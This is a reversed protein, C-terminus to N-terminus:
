YNTNCFLMPRAPSKESHTDKNINYKNVKLNVILVCNVCLRNVNALILYVLKVDM